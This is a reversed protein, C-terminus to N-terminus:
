ADAQVGQEIPVQSHLHISYTMSPFCNNTAGVFACGKKTPFGESHIRVPPYPAQLTLTSRLTQRLCTRRPRMTSSAM